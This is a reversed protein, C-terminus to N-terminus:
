VGRFTITVGQPNDAIDATFRCTIVFSDIGEIDDPVSNVIKNNSVTTNSIIDTVARSGKGSVSYTPQKTSDIYVITTKAITFSATGSVEITKTGKPLLIPYKDAYVSSGGSLAIYGSPTADPSMYLLEKLANGSETGYSGIYDKGNELSTGSCEKHLLYVLNDPLLTEAASVSCNASQTGCTATITTTGVGMCTVLGDVVTAVDENSSVWTLEDTTNLPTKEATLQATAGVASFTISSQSLTLGTCPVPNDLVVTTVKNVAFNAGKIVLAKSM